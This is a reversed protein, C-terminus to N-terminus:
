FSCNQTKVTKQGDPNKRSKRFIGPIRFKKSDRSKVRRSKPNKRLKLIRSKQSKKDGLNPNKEDSPIDRCFGVRTKYFLNKWTRANILINGLRSYNTIKSTGSKWKSYLNSCIRTSIQLTKQGLEMRLSSGTKIM